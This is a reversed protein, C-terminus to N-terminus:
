GGSRAAADAAAARKVYRAGLYAEIVAASSTVDGVGGQAIKKGEALVVLTTSISMIAKMLHEVVILTVGRANIGRLLALAEDVESANLGAMVEDLLLVDPDLALAKAVELRKRDPITLESAPRDAVRALAVIELLEAAREFAAATSRARGARGYM